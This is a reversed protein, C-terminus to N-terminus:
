IQILKKGLRLSIALNRGHSKGQPKQITPLAAPRSSLGCMLFLHPSFTHIGVSTRLLFMCGSVPIFGYEPM